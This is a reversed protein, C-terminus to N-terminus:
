GGDDRQRRLRKLLGPLHQRIEQRLARDGIWSLVGYVLLVLASRALVDLLPHGTVLRLALWSSLAFALLGVAVTVLPVSVRLEKNGLWVAGATLVVFSILTAAASGRLGFPPILVFNLALNLAAAVLVGAFIISTRKRLMLGATAITFFSDLTAGLILMPVVVAGEVYKASALITILPAASATVLAALLFAAAFHLRSYRLVFAETALRGEQKWLRMVMPVAAASLATLTALKIYDCLNYSASYVGVAEAGILHHIVYRDGMALLLWAMESGVMPVGFLVMARLMAGSMDKVALPQRRIVILAIALVALLEAAVTAMFFVDAGAAFVLLSGIVVALVLYRRSVNYISLVGSREQAYLLNTFASDLVRILVLAASILLLHKMGAQGLWREPVVLLGVVWAVTTVAGILLMGYILTATFRREGGGDATQAKAEQYFRVASKQMGLKGLAVTLSLVVAVTSMLGYDEVSLLRTLIPFSILSALTALVGALSYRWTHRLLGSM